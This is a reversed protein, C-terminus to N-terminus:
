TLIFYPDFYVYRVLSANNRGVAKKFVYASCPLYWDKRNNPDLCGFAFTNEGYLIRLGEMSLQQNTRPVQVNLYDVGHIQVCDQEYAARYSELRVLDRRALLYRLIMTRVEVPVKLLPFYRNEPVTKAKLDQSM